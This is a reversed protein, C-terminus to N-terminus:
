EWVLVNPLSEDIRRLLTYGTGALGRFLGLSFRRKGVNWQYDGNAAATEVVAMLRRCAVERLDSRDLVGAAEWLFEISGLTGCCLTDVANPWAGEVGDLARAIDRDLLKPDSAGCRMMAIRALGIGVAGHCWRSPWAVEPAVRLDPWNNKQADYSSNEFAICEAAADQFEERGTVAFLSALAYAFGSAGHSMGNLAQAGSGQTKWSRRGHPGVRPQGLLHEGCRTARALVEGSRTEGYLRLLCLIAGASGGIVDLQRDAAILDDTILEAAVQADTLLESEGLRRSMLTLAYVLSGLGTGGAVGLSRAMRASGRSRLRKRVGAVAALALEGSSKCGTVAAHAALFVAIGSSGNYLDPGLAVLQSVESDGLWDVGIWAAGPGRRLARSSLERAIGDAEAMFAERPATGSVECRLVRKGDAREVPPAASKAVAATNQRIVEIQWAIDHENLTQARTRARDLGATADSRSSIGTGDHMEHGDSACVFHPANLETLAAREARHLPWLPDSDGDWDALRAIFDAQASWAAGDNMTRHDKLRQLLMAYFRTPRVIKRVPLGAFGDFLDPRSEDRLQRLLFRAYDEFGSVFDDIFEGFAAYDGDIHPLNAAAAAAQTLKRPRMSDSNMHDWAYDTRTAQNHAMGGMVFIDNDPSRGYAPLLGVMSVSNAITETALAFAHGEPDHAKQEEPAAQLITELDIPVPHNGTAIMNEQHMDNAAFCHFLALWAGARRFFKNFDQRNACGAHEILETWGYGDRSVLRVAKLEVPPDARNLRDVLDHWCADLRLDKPKYVVRAGDEFTVIQVSRGGNHPDSLEGEVNAIRSRAPSRLLDRRVMALDADLRVILERSADIWQRAISAMLRLLIPKDEFLRRCGGAKMEAVFRDYRSTGCGRQPLPADASATGSAAATAPAPRCAKVFREYFAPACLRALEHRLLARLSAYASENLNGLAASDIDSRLRSEAAEIVPALLHEFACPEARDPEASKNGAPSQLAAEIWVAHTIWAPMAASASRRVTALRALVGAISLRDQELRRSFLAWDGGACSRCWAALRRAALDADGKRGPLAEFDDSLLEDITAARIVLREHFDDM